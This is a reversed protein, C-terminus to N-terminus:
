HPLLRTPGHSRAWFEQLSKRIHRGLRKLPRIAALTLLFGALRLIGALVLLIAFVFIAPLFMIFVGAMTFIYTLAFGVISAQDMQFGMLLWPPPEM